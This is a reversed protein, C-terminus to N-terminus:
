WVEPVKFNEPRADKKLLPPAAQERFKVVLKKMAPFRKPARDSRDNSEGPDRAVNFLEWEDKPSSLAIAGVDGYGLDDAVILVIHLPETALVPPVILSLVVIFSAIHHKSGM